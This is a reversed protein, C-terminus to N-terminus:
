SLIKEAQSWIESCNYVTAVYAPPPNEV